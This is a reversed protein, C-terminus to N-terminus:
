GSGPSGVRAGGRGGEIGPVRAELRRAVTNLSHAEKTFDFEQAIQNQLETIM